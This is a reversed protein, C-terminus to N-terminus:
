ERGPGPEGPLKTSSHGAGGPATARRRSHWAMLGGVVVVYTVTVVLPMITSYDRLDTRSAGEVLLDGLAALALFPALFLGLIAPVMVVLLVGAFVVMVVTRVRSGQGAIAVAARAVLPHPRTGSEARAPAEAADRPATM